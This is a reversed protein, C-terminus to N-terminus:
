NYLFLKNKLVLFICVLVQNINRHKLMAKILWNLTVLALGVSSSSPETVSDGMINGLWCSSFVFLSFVFSASAWCSAESSSRTSTSSSTTSLTTSSSTTSSTTSSSTTSSSTTSSSPTVSFGLSSSFRTSTLSSISSNSPWNFLNSWDLESSIFLSFDM